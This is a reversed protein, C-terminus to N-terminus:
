LFREEDIFISEVNVKVLLLKYRELYSRLINTSPFGVGNFVLSHVDGDKRDKYTLKIAVKRSSDIVRFVTTMGVKMEMYKTIFLRHNIKKVDIHPM